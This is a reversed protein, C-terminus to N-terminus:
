EGYKKLERLKAICPASADLILLQLSYREATQKKPKVKFAVIQLKGLPAEHGRKFRRLVLPETTVRLVLPETTVKLTV